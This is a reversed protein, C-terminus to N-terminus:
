SQIAANPALVAVETGVVNLAPEHQDHRLVLPRSSSVNSQIVLFREVAAENCGM